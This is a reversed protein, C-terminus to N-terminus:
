ALVWGQYPANLDFTSRNSHIEVLPWLDCRVFLVIDRAVFGLQRPNRAQFVRRISLAGAQSDDGLHGSGMAGLDTEVLLPQLGIAAQRKVTIVRQPLPRHRVKIREPLADPIVKIQLRRRRVARHLSDVGKCCRHM